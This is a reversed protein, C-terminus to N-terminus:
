PLKRVLTLGDSVALMVSQVRGDNTVRDNLARIALTSPERSGPDSVSGGWFVNDLAILGGPRLRELIEEYYVGYNEKDADVFGFDFVAEQPLSRLTEVAPGLRLDIRQAVGAKEWYRRAVATFEASVDCAILQGEPPLARAMCLASYGTFTGVEVVRRAGIAAVLLGLLTGQDAAIQMGARRGFKDETERRLELLIADDPTRHAMLYEHLVDDLPTVKSM